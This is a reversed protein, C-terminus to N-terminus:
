HSNVIKLSKNQGATRPVYLFYNIGKGRVIQQYLEYHQRITQIIQPAWRFYFEEKFLDTTTIILSFRHHELDTIFPTMDWLHQKALASMIFPQFLVPRNALLNFIPYESLIDGPHAQVIRIVENAKALDNFDPNHHSFLAPKLRNLNYTHACFLLLIIVLLLSFFLKTHRIALQYIAASKIAVFLALAFEPEIFYNTAAGEKGLGALTIITIIFYFTVLNIEAGSKFASRITPILLKAGEIILFGGALLLMFKNFFWFHLLLRKLQWFSFINLNYIVLHRYIESQTAVMLLSFCAIIALLLPIAFMFAQGFRRQLLLWIFVAVPAAIQIQKTFFALFFMLIAPLFLFRHKISFLSFGLGFASLCVALYDVRSYAIWEYNDYTVLFIFPALLALPLNHTIVMVLFFLLAMIGVVCALSILRGKTLLLRPSNSLISLLAPYLPTYNGVIFPYRDIPQYISVGDAILLAQNLIFGEEGDLQYPFVIALRARNEYSPLFTFINVCLLTLFIIVFSIQIIKKM